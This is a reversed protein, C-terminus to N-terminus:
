GEERVEQFGRKMANINAEIVKQSFKKSYNESFNAVLSDLSILGTVGALAGLTPTNPMHRELEEMSIRSADVTYVRGKGDIGLEARIEEPPRPSNVIFITDEDTGDTISGGEMGGTPETGILTPDIIVVIDPEKVQAHIRIPMEAIRNFARVPAGMREPGFEPFAQVFKGERLATEGLLKAATVVGQQARGHWRVEMYREM